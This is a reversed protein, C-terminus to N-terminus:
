PKAEGSIMEEQLREKLANGIEACRVCVALVGDGFPKVITPTPEAPKSHAVCFVYIPVTISHKKPSAGNVVRFRQRAAQFSALEHEAEILSSRARDVEKLASFWGDSQPKTTQIRANADEERKKANALNTKLKTEIADIPNKM